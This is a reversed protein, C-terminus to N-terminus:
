SKQAEQHTLELFLDELERRDEVLSEPPHGASSLFGALDSGRGTPSSTVLHGDRLRAGAGWSTATLVALAGYADTVQVLFQGSGSLLDRVRGERVQRGQNIILVRDCTEEVERLVHSSVLIAKGEIALRRLLDRMEVIGAPDLGNAPEDLIVLDPDGLLALGLGLRQKMGLSYTHVRDKAREALGVTALARDIASRPVGGRARRVYELNDRGSLFPLVAPSEILSGVQTLGTSGDSWVDHGFIRVSGSSPRILNLCMRITTTKGAGNPGLFGLVEGSFLSFSLGDVALRSGYSRSLNDLQLATIPESM